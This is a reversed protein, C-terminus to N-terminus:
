NATARGGRRGAARRIDDRHEEDSLTLGEFRDHTPLYRGLVRYRDGYVGAFGVEVDFLFDTSPASSGVSESWARLRKPRGPM